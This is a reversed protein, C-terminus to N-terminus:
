AQLVSYLTENVFVYKGKAKFDQYLIKELEDLTIPLYTYDDVENGGEVLFQIAGVVIMPGSDSQYSFFGHVVIHKAVTPVGKQLVSCDASWPLLHETGSNRCSKIYTHLLAVEDVGGSARTAGKLHIGFKRKAKCTRVNGCGEASSKCCFTCHNERKGGKIADMTKGHMRSEIQRSGPRPPPKPPQKADGDLSFSISGTATGSFTHQYNQIIDEVSGEILGGDSRMMEELQIALGYAQRASEQGRSVALAAFENTVKTIDTYTVKAIKKSRATNHHEWRM